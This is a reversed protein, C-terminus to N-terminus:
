KGFEYRSSRWGYAHAFNVAEDLEDDLLKIYKSMSTILLGAALLRKESKTKIFKVAGGTNKM